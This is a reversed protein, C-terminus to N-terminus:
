TIIIIPRGLNAIVNVEVPINQHCCCVFSWHLGGSKCNRLVSNCLTSNTLAMSFFCVSQVATQTILVISHWVINKEVIMSMIYWDFAFNINNFSIVISKIKLPILDIIKVWILLFWSSLPLGTGLSFGRPSSYLGLLCLGCTIGLSPILGPGCQHSAISEGSHWGQPENRLIGSVKRAM